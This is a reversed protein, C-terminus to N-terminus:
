GARQETPRSIRFSGVDAGDGELGDLFAKIALRVVVNRSMRLAVAGRGLRDYDETPIRLYLVSTESM